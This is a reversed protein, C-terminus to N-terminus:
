QFSLAGNVFASRGKILSFLYDYLGKKSPKLLQWWHNFKETAANQLDIQLKDLVLRLEEEFLEALEPHFQSFNRQILAHQMLLSHSVMKQSKQYLNIAWDNILLDRVRERTEELLGQWIAERDELRDETLLTFAQIAIARDKAALKEWNPSSTDLLRLTNLEKALLPIQKQCDQHWNEIQTFFQAVLSACFRDIHAQFLHIHRTLETMPERKNELDEVTLLQGQSNEVPRIYIESSGPQGQRGARNRAQEEVRLSSPLFTILTHLGGAEISEKTLLIDTGRAATNTAVTIAGPKGAMDLIETALKEQVENLMEHPIQGLQERVCDSDAITECIVLVPRGSRHLDAIKTVIAELWSKESPYMKVPLDVRLVPNYTPVDFAPMGYIELLEKRESSSGVTGTMGFRKRYMLYFVSHSLSIPCISEHAIQVGEKLEVFEHTGKQWRCGHHIKGTNQADVILVKGDRVIYDHNIKRDFLASQASSVWTKLQEDTLVPVLNRFKKRDFEALFSRLESLSYDRKEGKEQIYRFIPIYVWDYTTEATYAIRAGNMGTDITLNDAEDIIVVDFRQQTIEGLPERFLKKQYLIERMIGFEFDSTVGYLVDADFKEASPDEGCISNTTIGFTKFFFHCKKQERESLDPSSSILHVSKNQMAFVFTMLTVIMSKGESTKVQAIVGDPFLLEALVTLVQTNYLYIGFQIRIALRAIAILKLVEEQNLEPKARMASALNVLEGIRLRENAKCFAQVRRYQDAIQAIQSENLPFPMEAFRRLMPELEKKDEVAISAVDPMYSEIESTLTKWALPKNVNTIFKTVSPMTQPHNLLKNLFTAQRIHQDFSISTHCTAMSLASVLEEGFEQHIKQIQLLWEDVDAQTYGQLVREKSHTTLAVLAGILGQREAENLEKRNAITKFAIEYFPFPMRQEKPLMKLHALKQSVTTGKKVAQSPEEIAPRTQEQKKSQTIALSHFDSVLTEMTNIRRRAVFNLFPPWQADQLEQLRTMGASADGCRFLHLFIRTVLEVSEENKMVTQIIFRAWLIGHNENSTLLQWDIVDRLAPDLKDCRASEIDRLFRRNNEVNM